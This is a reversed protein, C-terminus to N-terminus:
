SVYGGSQLYKRIELQVTKQIEKQLSEKKVGPYHRGVAQKNYLSEFSLNGPVLIGEKIEFEFKVRVPIGVSEFGMDLIHYFVKKAVVWVM